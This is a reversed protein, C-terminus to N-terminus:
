PVETNTVWEPKCKRIFKYSVYSRDCGSDFLLKATVTNRISNVM